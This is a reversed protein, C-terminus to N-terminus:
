AHSIATKLIDAMCWKPNKFEPLKLLQCGTFHQSANQNWIETFNTL